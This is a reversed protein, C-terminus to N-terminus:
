PPWFPLSLIIITVLLSVSKWLESIFVEMHERKLQERKDM